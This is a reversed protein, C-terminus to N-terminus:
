QSGGRLARWRLYQERQAADGDPNEYGQLWFRFWDLNRRMISRLHAPQWKIHSEGSYVYTDYPKQADALNKILPLLGYTEQAALHMLIPAEIEDVHDAIDLQRYFQRGEDDPRPLWNDVPLGLAAMERPPKKTGWYYQFPGWSPSSISIAAIRDHKQLMHLPVFSGHSVGGIGVRKTDLFGRAAITDLGRLTSEMLMTLHPFGLEASYIEKSTVPRGSKTREAYFPFTTRLVVIGNAAYVHLAHEAGLPAFGWAVYPDIFVPYKKSPDFDPPYLVYGYAQKPYLGELAGGAENWALKPTDWEFREVKGLRINLFEPNVDALVRTRGSRPHISVVHAPRAANEKVCVLVDGHAASCLKLDDNRAQETNGPPRLMADFAARAVDAARAERRDDLTFRWIALDKELARLLAPAMFDTFQWLDEDYRYGDWARAQEAARLETRPTGASFYIARGDASWVFDRVDSLNSTLKEQLSGDARSRWLQVESDRQLTYAIWQGDPSWRGEGGSVAGPIHGTFMVRPGVAGGDGIRTLESTQTNGVYWAGRYENTLPDGQRVFMVFRRGDPSVSLSDVARIAAVDDITITRKQTQVVAPIVVESAETNVSALACLAIVLAVGSGKIVNISVDM